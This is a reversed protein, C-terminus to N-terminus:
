KGDEQKKKRYHKKIKNMSRLKKYCANFGHTFAQKQSIEKIGRKKLGEEFEKVSQHRLKPIVTKFRM